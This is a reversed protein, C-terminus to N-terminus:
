QGRRPVQLFNEKPLNPVSAKSSCTSASHHFAVSNESVFLSQVNKCPFSQKRQNIGTSTPKLALKKGCGSYSRNSNISIFEIGLYNILILNEDNQHRTPPVSNMLPDYGTSVSNWVLINESHCWGMKLFICVEGLSSIHYHSALSPKGLAPMTQALPQTLHQSPCMLFPLIHIFPWSVLLSIRFMIIWLKFDVFM